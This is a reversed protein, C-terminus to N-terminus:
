ADQDAQEQQPLPFSPVRDTLIKRLDTRTAEFGSGTNVVCDAREIKEAMPMQSAIIANLKDETMGSRQMARDRQTQPDAICLITLDCLADGGTEFLLPVDLVVAPTDLLRYQDLFEDRDAAVLPHLIAELKQRMSDNGFVARGLAQRDVSGDAAIMDSGFINTISAVARGNPAMLKHVTADADHVPIDIDRLMAAATTKGTAIGGTLGIVIM